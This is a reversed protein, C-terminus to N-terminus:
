DSIDQLFWALPLKRGLGKERAKEYVRYATATFQIPIGQSAFVTIEEDSARGPVKGLVVDSLFAVKEEPLLRQERLVWRTDLDEGDEWGPIDRAEPHAVYNESTPNRSYVYRHCRRFVDDDLEDPIVSVVHTGPELWEGRFVPVRSSTCAAVIDAGKVVERPEDVAVVQIGLDQGMQRAFARRHEPNPSYVKMTRIPRVKAIAWAHTAAMGATGFVGLTSADQRAMYKASLGGAAAVRMHQIHGDNMIALLAGDRTSYLLIIGSFKGPAVCYKVVRDRAHPYMDSKIRIALAGVKPLAAAMPGWRYWTRGDPQLVHHHARSATAYGLGFERYADEAVELCDEMTLVQPVVENDIFLVSRGAIEKDAEPNGRYTVYRIGEM